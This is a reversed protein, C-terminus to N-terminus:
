NLPDREGPRLQHRLLMRYLTSRAVGLARAARSLNGGAQGLARLLAGREAAARQDGAEARAGAAEIPLHWLEIRPHDDALVIAYHLASKLERVNGPWPHQDMWALAAPSFGLPKPRGRAVALRELLVRALELRDTRERLPPLRLVVGRMRFYLDSRFHGTRVLGPLDRSTAAILRVDARREAAEGVRYYTGDELFRLLTAQASASLEGIEDLFLTGRDAAALKGERGSAAAGTFSGPGYGFLESELLSGALGGCNVAVFPGDAQPSSAHIARAFVEKGAGTEALLLIPLDSRAFREAQERAAVLTADEGFIAEFAPARRKAERAAVRPAPRPRVHVLAGFPDEPSGIPELEVALGRLPAPLMSENVEASPSGPGFRARAFRVLAAQGPGGVLARFRDNARRVHGTAELVFSAYPLRALLRELEFLGGPMAADYTRAVILAEIAAATAAVSAHVFSAGSTAPGSADLVAVIRARVDRVPSAYCALVHNRLEFHEAGIVAVPSREFLATGVGNTGRTGESWVAGEVLRTRAIATDFPESIRRSLVVGDADCFIGCFGADAMTAAFADFPAGPALLPAFADRSRALAQLDMVPEGPNDASLGAERSRQWRRLVPSDCIERESCHGTQFREWLALATPQAHAAASM